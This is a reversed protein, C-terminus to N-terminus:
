VVAKRVPMRGALEVWTDGNYEIVEGGIFVDQSNLTKITRVSADVDDAVCMLMYCKSGERVLKAHEVREKYGQNDSGAFKEHFTVMMFYRDDHCTKRDQWVRLIVTGDSERVSGWSWRANALPANLKKFLGTISM